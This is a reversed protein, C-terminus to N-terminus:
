CRLTAWAHHFLQQHPYSAAMSIWIRRVTIRLLAGIKLLRLRITGVQARAMDTGPLALRRFGDVLLYAFASFYIRIQNAQMRWGLWGLAGVPLLVILTLILILKPRLLTAESGIRDRDRSVRGSM